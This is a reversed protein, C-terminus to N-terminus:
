FEKLIVGPYNKVEGPAEDIIIPIKRIEEESIYGPIIWYIVLIGLLLCVLIFLLLLGWNVKRNEQGNNNSFTFM